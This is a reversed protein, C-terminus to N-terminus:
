FVFLHNGPLLLTPPLPPFLQLPNLPVFRWNYTLQETATNQQVRQLMLSITLLMTIAKHPSLENSSKHHHDNAFTLDDYLVGSTNTGWDQGVVQSGTSQLRLPVETWTRWALISSHTAMGKELSDEWGLSQVWTEQMAPLNKVRQAELSVWYVQFQCSITCARYKM